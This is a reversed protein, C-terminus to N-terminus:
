AAAVMTGCLKATFPLACVILKGVIAACVTPVGRVSDAVAVEPRAILKVDVVVLTHVTEPVVAVNM